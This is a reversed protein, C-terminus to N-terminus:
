YNTQGVVVTWSRCWGEGDLNGGFSSDNNTGGTTVTTASTDFILTGAGALDPFTQSAGLFTSGNVTVKGTLTNSSSNLDVLGVLSLDGASIASDVVLINDGDARILGSGSSLDLTGGALDVDGEQLWIADVVETGALTVTNPGVSDTGASFVAANGATWTSTPVLGAGEASWTADSWNGGADGSDAAAGNTDWYSLTGAYANEVQVGAIAARASGRDAALAVAPQGLIKIYNDSEVLVDAASFPVVPYPDDVGTALVAGGAGDGKYYTGNVSIPMLTTGDTATIVYIDNLLYPSEVNM